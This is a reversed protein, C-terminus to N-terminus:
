QWNLIHGCHLTKSPKRMIKIKRYSVSQVQDSNGSSVIRSRTVEIDTMEDELDDEESSM